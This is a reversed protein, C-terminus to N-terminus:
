GQVQLSLPPGLVERLIIASRISGPTKLLLRINAAAPPLTQAYADPVVLPGISSPGPVAPALAAPVPAPDPIEVIPISPPVPVPTLTPATRAAPAPIAPAAPRPRPQFVPPTGRSPPPPLSTKPIGLAELLDRVSDDAEERPPGVPRAAPRRMIPRAPPQGRTSPPPQKSAGRKVLWNLWAFVAVVLLVFLQEM